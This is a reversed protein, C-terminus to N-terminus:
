AGDGQRQVRRDEPLESDAEGTLRLFVTELMDEEPKLLRLNLGAAAAARFLEASREIPMNITV